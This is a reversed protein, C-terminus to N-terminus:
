EIDASVAATREVIVDKGESSPLSFFYIANFEFQVRDKNFLPLTFCVSKHNLSLFPHITYLIKPFSFVCVTTDQSVVIFRGYPLKDSNLSDAFVEYHYKYPSYAKLDDPVKAVHVETYTLDLDGDKKTVFYISDNKVGMTFTHDDMFSKECLTCYLYKGGTPVQRWSHEKVYQEREAKLQAQREALKRAEEKAYYDDLSIEYNGTSTKVYLKKEKKDYAYYISAEFVGFLINKCKLPGYIVIKLYQMNRM